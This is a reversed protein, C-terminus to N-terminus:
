TGPVYWIKDIEGGQDLFYSRWFDLHEQAQYKLTRERRVYWIEIAIGSMDTRLHDYYPTAKFQDYNVTPKYQSYGEVYQLLDSIIILRRPIKKSIMAQSGLRTVVISQISEMIPSIRATETTLISDLLNQLPTAFIRKWRGEMLEPNGTWKSIGEGRGPNCMSFEPQLLKTKTPEVTYIEIMDYQSTRDEVDNLRDRIAAQQTPTFPDTRDLLIDTVSSPGKADTPCFNASNTPRTEARASFYFYGIGIVALSLAVLVVIAKRGASRSKERRNPRRQERLM